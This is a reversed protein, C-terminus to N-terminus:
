FDPNHPLSYVSVLDNVWELTKVPNKERDTLTYRSPSRDPLIKLLNKISHAM